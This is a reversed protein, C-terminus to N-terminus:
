KIKELAALYGSIYTSPVTVIVSGRKGSIKIDLGTDKHSILYAHDMNVAVTENVTKASLVTRDIEVLDLQVGDSDGAESYFAWNGLTQSFYLQVLELSGNTFLARLIYDKSGVPLTIEFVKPGTIWTTGDYKDSIASTGKEVAAPDNINATACGLFLMCAVLVIPIKNMDEGSHLKSAAVKFYLGHSLPYGEFCRSGERYVWSGLGM